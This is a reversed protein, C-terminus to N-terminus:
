HTRREPINFNMWSSGGEGLLQGERGDGVSPTQRGKLSHHWIDPLWKLTLCFVVFPDENKLDPASVKWGCKM